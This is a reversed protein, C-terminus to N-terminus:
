ASLKDLVLTGAGPALSTAISAEPTVLPEDSLCREIDDVSVQKVGARIFDNAIGIRQEEDMGGTTPAFDRLQATHNKRKRRNVPDGFDVLALATNIDDTLCELRVLCSRCIAQAAERSRQSRGSFLKRNGSEACPLEYGTADRVNQVESKM